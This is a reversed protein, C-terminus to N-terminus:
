PIKYGPHAYRYAPGYRRTERIESREDPSRM